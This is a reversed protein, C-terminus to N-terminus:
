PRNLPEADLPSLEIGGEELAASIRGLEEDTLDARKKEFRALRAVSM